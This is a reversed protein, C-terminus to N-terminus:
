LPNFVTNAKNIGLCSFAWMVIHLQGPTPLRNACAPRMGTDAKYRPRRTNSANIHSRLLHSSESLSILSISTAACALVDRQCVYFTFADKNSSYEYLRRKFGPPPRSKGGVKMVDRPGM